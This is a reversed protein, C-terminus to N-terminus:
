KLTSSLLLGETCVIRQHPFALTWFSQYALWVMSEWKAISCLLGCPISWVGGFGTLHCNNAPVNERCNQSYAILVCFHYLTLLSTRYRYHVFSPPIKNPSVHKSPLSTLLRGSGLTTANLMALGRKDGLDVGM